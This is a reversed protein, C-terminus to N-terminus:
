LSKASMQSKRGFGESITLLIFNFRISYNSYKNFLSIYVPYIHTSALDQTHM